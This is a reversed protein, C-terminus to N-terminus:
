RRIIEVSNFGPIRMGLQEHAIKEVRGHTSWTSQELQLQGFETIFKDREFQLENLQVFMKRNLHKTYVLGTATVLVAVLLVSFLLWQKM